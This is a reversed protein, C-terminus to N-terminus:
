IHPIGREWRAERESVRMRWIGGQPEEDHRAQDCGSPKAETELLAHEPPIVEPGHYGQSEVRGEDRTLWTRQTVKGCGESKGSPTNM